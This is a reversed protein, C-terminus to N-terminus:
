CKQGCYPCYNFEPEVKRHCHPCTKFPEFQVLPHLHEARIDPNFGKEYQAGITPDLEFISDCCGSKAYYQLNWKFTPIFFLHFYTYRKYLELRTLAGCNPCITNNYTGIPKETQNVGFIGIFFM